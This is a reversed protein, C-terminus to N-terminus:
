YCGNSINYIDIKLKVMMFKIKEKIEKQTIM